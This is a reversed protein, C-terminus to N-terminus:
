DAKYQWIKQWFFPSYGANFLKKYTYENKLASASLFHLSRLEAEVALNNLLDASLKNERNSLDLTWLIHGGTHEIEVQGIASAHISNSRIARTYWNIPFMLCELGISSPIYKFGRM